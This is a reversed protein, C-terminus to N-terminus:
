RIDSFSEILRPGMATAEHSDADGLKGFDLKTLKAVSAVPVQFVRVQENTLALHHMPEAAVEIAEPSPAALLFLSLAVPGTM